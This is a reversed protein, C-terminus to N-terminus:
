LTQVGGAVEGKPQATVPHQPAAPMSTVSAGTESDRVSGGPFSPQAHVAAANSLTDAMLEMSKSLYGQLATWCCTYSGPSVEILPIKHYADRTQAGHSRFEQAGRLDHGALCPRWPVWAAAPESAAHAEVYCMRIYRTGTRPPCCSPPLVQIGRAGDALKVLEEHM